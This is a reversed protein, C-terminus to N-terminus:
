FEDIQAFLERLYYDENQRYVTGDLTYPYMISAPVGSTFDDERHKRRLICHGLEHLVLAERKAEDMGNWTAENIVIEPPSDQSLLCHGAEQASDVKGFRITVDTVKVRKGYIESKTEFLNLYKTFGGTDVVPSQGCGASLLILILLNPRRSRHMM